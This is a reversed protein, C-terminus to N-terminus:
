VASPGRLTGKQRAHLSRVQERWAANGGYRDLPVLEFYDLPCSYYCPGCGESMDKYGWEGDDCRLLDCAIWRRPPEAEVGGKMFRQEWASWLVGCFVAQKYCHALCTAKVTVGDDTTRQRGRTRSEILDERTVGHPFSWGM